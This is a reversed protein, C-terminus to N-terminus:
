SVVPALGRAGDRHRSLGSVLPHMSDSERATDDQLPALRADSEHGGIREGSAPTADRVGVDVAVPWTGHGVRQGRGTVFRDPDRAVHGVLGLGRGDDLAGDGDRDAQM